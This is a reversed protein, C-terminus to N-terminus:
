VEALAINGLVFYTLSNGRRLKHSDNTNGINVYPQSPKSMDTPLTLRSFSQTNSHNIHFFKHTEYIPIPLVHAAISLAIPCPSFQVAAYVLM